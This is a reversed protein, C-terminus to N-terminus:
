NPLSVAPRASRSPPATLSAPLKLQLSTADFHNKYADFLDLARQGGVAPKESPPDMYGILQYATVVDVHRQAIQLQTRLRDFAAPYANEYKPGDMQWLEINAWLHKGSNRHAAAYSAYADDLMAIRRQPDYTNEYPVYGSGVADQYAFIDVNSRALIEPSVVPTGAPSVLVPKDAEFTRLFDTIPNYYARSAQDIDNAEHTLYWGYFSPEHGYLQWLEVATKMSFESAAKKRDPDDFGTWTLTEDPGRGLGVFVHQSNKSAQNLITGVIDFAAPRPYNAFVRSPYYAGGGSCIYEPYTIILGNVGAAHYRDIAARLEHETMAPRGPSQPAAVAGPDIWGFQILPLARTKSPVVHLPWEHTSEFDAEGTVRCRVQNKGIFQEAAFRVTKFEQGHPAVEFPIRKIPLSKGAVSDVTVIVEFKAARPTHNRAAVRVEVQTHSSVPGPPVVTM